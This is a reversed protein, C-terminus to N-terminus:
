QQIHRDAAEVIAAMEKDADESLYAPREKDLIARCTDTARATLDLRVGGRQAERTAPDLVLDACRLQQPALSRPRRALARVRALLEAFAFPKPLYDDAGLELGAVRDAVDDRATLCLIPTEVGRSRLARIVEFGSQIPLMIDLVIVDYAGTLGLGAAQRGDRATDVCYGHEQLGKQVFLALPGDDEAVLILM